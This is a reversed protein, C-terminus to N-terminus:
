NLKIIIIIINKINKIITFFTFVRTVYKNETVYITFINETDNIVINYKKFIKLAIKKRLKLVYYV